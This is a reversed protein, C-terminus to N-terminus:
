SLPITAKAVLRGAAACYRFNFRDAGQRFPSLRARFPQFACGHSGCGCAHLGSNPSRSRFICYATSGHRYHSPMRLERVWPRLGLADCVTSGWVFRVIQRPCHQKRSRHMHTYTLSLSSSFFPPNQAAASLRSAVRASPANHASSSSTLIFGLIPVRFLKNWPRPELLPM